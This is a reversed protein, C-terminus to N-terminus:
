RVVKMVIAAKHMQFVEHDHLCYGCGEEEKNENREKVTRTQRGNSERSKRIETKRDRKECFGLRMKSTKQALM